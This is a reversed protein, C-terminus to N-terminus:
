TKQLNFKLSRKFRMFLHCVHCMTPLRVSVNLRAMSISEVASGQIHGAQCDMEKKRNELIEVNIKKRYLFAIGILDLIIFDARRYGWFILFGTM